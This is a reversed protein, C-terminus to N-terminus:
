AAASSETQQIQKLLGTLVRGPGVEHFAAGPQAMLYSMSQLWQVPSSIQKILPGTLDGDEYPRATLNSIVPIKPRALRYNSVIREFEAEAARMYRSHFAASVRLPVFRAGSQELVQKVAELDERRGSLVTQTPANYNAVDLSGYGHTALVKTIREPAIGLVAAMGGETAQSMLRGREMVLELGTLFDFAGAAFLASYEGLSHGAVFAPVRGSDRVRELYSLANVVYLAPQTYRTDNLRAAPGNLCLEELSYGLVENAMRVLHPYKPFLDKGMGVSQSGQGPFVYITTM